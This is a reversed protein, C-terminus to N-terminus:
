GIPGQESSSPETSTPPAGLAEPPHDETTPEDEVVGRRARQYRVLAVVAIILLAIGALIVGVLIEPSSLLGPARSQKAFPVPLSAASSGAGVANYAAVRFYYDSGRTGNAVDYSTVVGLRAASWPGSASTAWELLYGLLASGDLHAPPGWSVEVDSSNASAM